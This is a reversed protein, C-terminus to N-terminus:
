PQMVLGDATYLLGEECWFPKSAGMFALPVSPSEKETSLHAELHLHATPCFGVAGSSCIRQGRKVADGKQVAASGTAIHVYEVSAGDDQLVTVQNWRFLNRVDIGSVSESDKVLTVTGDGVALVPTGVDCDLDVAHFTSVHAFHTLHGGSEQSCLFPGPGGLPFGVVRRDELAVIPLPVPWAPLDVIDSHIEVAAVNRVGRLKCVDLVERAGVVVVFSVVARRNGEEDISEGAALEKGGRGFCRYSSPLSLVFCRVVSASNVVSLVKGRPDVSIDPLEELPDLGAKEFSQTGLTWPARRHAVHCGPWRSAPFAEDQSHRPLKALPSRSRAECSPGSESAM